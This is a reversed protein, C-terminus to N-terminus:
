PCHGTLGVVSTETGLTFEVAEPEPRHAPGQHAPLHTVITEPSLISEHHKGMRM